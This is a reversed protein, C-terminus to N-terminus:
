RILRLEVMVGTPGHADDWHAAYLGAGGRGAWPLRLVASKPKATRGDSRLRGELPVM